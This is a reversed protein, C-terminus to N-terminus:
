VGYIQFCIMVILVSPPHMTLFLEIIGIFQMIHSHNLKQGSTLTCCKILHAANSISRSRKSKQNNIHYPCLLDNDLRASKVRISKSNPKRQQIERLYNTGWIRANPTNGSGAVHLVCEYFLIQRLIRCDFSMNDMCSKFLIIQHSYDQPHSQYVITIKYLFM